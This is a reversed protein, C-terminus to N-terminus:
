RLPQESAWHSLRTVHAQLHGMTRVLRHPNFSNWGWRTLLLTLRTELLNRTFEWRLRTLELALGAHEEPALLLLDSAAEHLANFDSELEGLYEEVIACRSQRLRRRLSESGGEQSRVFEFDGEALLRSLPAYKTPSIDPWGRRRNEMRRQRSILSGLIAGFAILLVISLLAAGLLGANAVLSDLSSSVSESSYRLRM